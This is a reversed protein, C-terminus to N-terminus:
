LRPKMVTVYRLQLDYILEELLRSEGPSRHGETKERLLVLLDIAQSAAGPDQRVQGTTPDAAEGLAVVASSALMLFLGQLSREGTQPPGRRGEPPNPTSPEAPAEDAPRPWVDPAATSAPERGEARRRRDTVRFESESESGVM